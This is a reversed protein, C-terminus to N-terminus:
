IRRSAPPGPPGGYDGAHREAGQATRQEGDTERQAGARRAGQRGEAFHTGAPAFGVGPQERAVAAGHVRQAEVQPHPAQWPRADLVNRRRQQTRQEGGLVPAEVLVRADVPARRRRAGPAIQPIRARAAGAGQRHLEDAQEVLVAVLLRRAAAPAVDRLLERLRGARQPQLPAPFLVLNELGVEVEGTEAAFQDTDRRHAAAQEPLPRVSEVLTFRRERRREQARRAGARLAHGRAGAPHQLRRRAHLPFPFLIRRGVAGPQVSEGAQRQGAAQAGLSTATPEAGLLRRAQRRMERALQQCLGALAQAARQVGVQLAKRRGRQLAVQAFDRPLVGLVARQQHEVVRAAFHEGPDSRAAGQRIRGLDVARARQTLGARRQLRKKVRLGELSAVEGGGRQDVIRRERQGGAVAEVHRLVVRRLIAAPDARAHREGAREVYRRHARQHADPRVGEAVAQVGEAEQAKALGALM